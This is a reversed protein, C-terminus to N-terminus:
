TSRVLKATLALGILIFVSCVLFTQRFGITEALFGGLAPGAIWGLNWTTNYMGIAAGREEGPVIDVILAVATAGMAAWAVGEMGQVLYVDFFNRVLSYLLFVLAFIGMSVLLIRKRGYKDSLKGFLPAALAGTAAGVTFVLGIQGRTAGLDEVYLAFVSYIMGSCVMLPFISAYVAYVSKKMPERWVM